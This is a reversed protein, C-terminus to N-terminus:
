TGKCLGGRSIRCFFYCGALSTQRWVQETHHFQHLFPFLFVNLQIYFLTSKPYLAKFIYFKAPEHMLFLVVSTANIQKQQFILDPMLSCWIEPSRAARQGEKARRHFRPGAPILTEARIEVSVSGPPTVSVGEWAGRQCWASLVSGAECWHQVLYESGKSFYFYWYRLTSMSLKLYLDLM